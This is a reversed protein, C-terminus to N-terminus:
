GHEGGKKKETRKKAEQVAGLAEAKAKQIQMTKIHKEIRNKYPLPLIYVLIDPPIIDAQALKLILNINNTTTIPSATHAYIEVRYDATLESLIFSYDTNNVRTKYTTDDNIQFLEATTTFVEEFQSEIRHAQRKLPASAFEALMNAYGESRVNKTPKGMMIENLGTIYTTQEDYYGIMEMALPIDLKPLYPDIKIGQGDIIFIGGPTSLNEKDAELRDRDLSYGQAILPPDLLAPIAQDIEDIRQMRYHQITKLLEIISMGYISSGKPIPCITFFPHFKLGTDKINVLQKEIFLARHWTSTDYDYYYLEDSQYVPMAAKPTLEFADRSPTEAAQTQSLVLGALSDQSETATTSQKKIKRYTKPYFHEVQRETLYTRHTFVQNINEIPLGEYVVGINEPAIERYDVGNGTWIIKIFRTGDILANTVVQSTINDLRKNFFNNKVKEQLKDAIKQQLDSIENETVLELIINDPSYIMAAIDNVEGFIRNIKAPSGDSTGRYYLNRYVRYKRLRKDRNFFCQNVLDYDIKM